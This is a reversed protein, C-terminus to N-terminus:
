LMWPQRCITEIPPPFADLWQRGALHYELVGAPEIAEVRFVLLPVRRMAAIGVENAVDDSANAAASLLVVALRASGLAEAIAGAWRAGAPVDRPAIWCPVGESELRSCISNASDRDASAHSIFAKGV